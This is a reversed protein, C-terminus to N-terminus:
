STVCRGTSRVNYLYKVSKVTSCVEVNIHANYKLLLYPNYPVVSDNFLERNRVLAARGDDRRRYAPYGGARKFQMEDNFAIPFDKQFKGDAMCTCAPNQVGCPRHMMNIVM